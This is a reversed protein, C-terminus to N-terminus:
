TEKSCSLKGMLLISKASMLSISRGPISPPAPTHYSIASEKQAFNLGGEGVICLLVRHRPGDSVKPSLLPAWWSATGGHYWVSSSKIM